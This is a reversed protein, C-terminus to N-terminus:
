SILELQGQELDLLKQKRWLGGAYGTLKGDAGVVRHCPIVIAIRNDGNARGVARVADPNGIARALESYTKTQGPAIERLQDWIEIQFDTGPVELPVDFSTRTREFYEALEREVQKLVENDGPVLVADFRKCVTKCQKELARRDAFELLVLADNTAAGIMPGLPTPIRRWQIPALDRASGPPKGIVRKMADNFGSLSEYGHDFGVSTIPEGRDLHNLARGLRIARAYAHFTIGYQKQFWRRAKAPEVDRDRLDQDRWRREPKEVVAAILEGVWGPQSASLEMPRCRKCSRYGAFLAERVTGFFEINEPKPRRAPCTPRCFIGTTKVAVFFIGDYQSDGDFFAQSMEQHNPLTMTM